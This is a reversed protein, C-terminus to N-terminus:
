KKFGKSDLGGVVSKGFKGAMLIIQRDTLKSKLDSVSQSYSRGFYVFTFTVFKEEAYISVIGYYFTYTGRRHEYKKGRAIVSINGYPKGVAYSTNYKKM